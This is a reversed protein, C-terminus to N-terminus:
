KDGGSYLSKLYFYLSWDQDNAWPDAYHTAKGNVSVPYVYACSATGDAHILSLTGRFSHEAKERYVVDGTIEYYTKYANGSLASWYHPFTDGYNRAKGFWYGDWHRIATEYLHYSPQKGSFLELVALQDKGACFYKRDGTIQYVQFLFSVAPAVISQEYNVEHAPYLLGNSKIYDAHECYKKQLEEKELIWGQRELLDISEKVPIAIAYFHKGGNQYYTMLIKWMNRLDREDKYFYFREMFFVAMWPYNYLRHWENDRMVDNYVTGTEEDYLERYVYHTFLQLSQEMKEDNNTQLWKALLVGMCVRERGGNHDYLHSYYQRKEETDYILFSGFLHSTKDMYQQKEVIFKCRNYALEEFLPQVLVEACTEYNKISIEWYEQEVTRKEEEVQIFIRGSSVTHQFEVAIGNRQIKIDEKEIQRDVCEIQMQMQEGQFFLHKNLQVLITHEYSKLQNYFDEVDRFWVLDWQIRYSEGPALKFGEPHLIIGGRDNSIAAPNRDISYGNLSGETLIMGMHPPIGGMRLGYIYSTNKGCWIHAHAREGMCIESSKYNDPFPTYIGIEHNMIFVEYPNTNKFLYTERFNGNATFERFIQVNLSDAGVVKGWQFDERIWNMHYMDEKHWLGTLMGEANLEYLFCRNYEENKIYSSGIINGM